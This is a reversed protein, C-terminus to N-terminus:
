RDAGRAAVTLDCAAALREARQTILARGADTLRYASECAELM